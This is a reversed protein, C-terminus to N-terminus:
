GRWTLLRCVQFILKAAEKDIKQGRLAVQQDTWDSPGEYATWDNNCGVVAVLKTAFAVGQIADSPSTWHKNLFRM